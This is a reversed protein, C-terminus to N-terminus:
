LERNAAEERQRRAMTTLADAAEEQIGRVNAVAAKRLAARYKKVEERSAGQGPPVIAASQHGSGASEPQAAEAGAHQQRRREGIPISMRSWIQDLVAMSTKGAEMEAAAERELADAMSGLHIHGSSSAPLAEIGSGTSADVCRIEDHEMQSAEPSQPPVQESTCDSRKTVESGTVSGIAPLEEDNTAAAPGEQLIVEHPPTWSTTRNLVNVYFTRGSAIDVRSEWGEPLTPVLPPAAQV